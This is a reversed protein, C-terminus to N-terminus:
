QLFIDDSFIIIERRSMKLPYNNKLDSDDIIAVVNLVAVSVYVSAASYFKSVAILAETFFFIRLAEASQFKPITKFSGSLVPFM